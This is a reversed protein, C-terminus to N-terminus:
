TKLSLLSYPVYQLCQIIVVIFTYTYTYLCVGFFEVLPARARHAPGPDAMATIMLAAFIRATYQMCGLFSYQFWGETVM